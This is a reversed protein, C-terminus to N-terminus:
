WWDKRSRPDMFAGTDRISVLVQDGRARGLPQDGSLAPLNGRGSDNSEEYLSLLDPEVCIGVIHITYGKM